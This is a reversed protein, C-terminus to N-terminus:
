YFRKIGQRNNNKMRETFFEWKSIFTENKLHDVPPVLEIFTPGSMPAIAKCKPNDVRIKEIKKGIFSMLLNIDDNKGKLEIIINKIYHYIYEAYEKAKDQKPIKGKHIIDNRFKVWKNDISKPAKKFELLYLFYFAGLQRESQVEVLKWTSKREEEPIKNLFIDICYEHFREISVALSSVAERTYGDILAMVGLDFLIQFSHLQLISINRHGSECTFDFVGGENIEVENNLKNEKVLCETCIVLTKM